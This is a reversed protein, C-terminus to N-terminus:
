WKSIFKYKIQITDRHIPISVQHTDIPWDMGQSM